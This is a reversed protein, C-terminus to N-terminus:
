SAVREAVVRLNREPHEQDLLYGLRMGDRVLARALAQLTDGPLGTVNAVLNEIPPWRVEAPDADLPLLLTSGPGFTERHEYALPWPDPRCAYLRVNPKRGERIAAAVERGYPPL